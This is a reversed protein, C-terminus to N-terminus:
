SKQPNEDVEVRRADNRVKNTPRDIQVLLKRIAAINSRTERFFMMNTREDVQPADKSQLQAAILPATDKARAPAVDELSVQGNAFHEFLEHSKAVEGVRCGLTEIAGRSEGVDDNHTHALRERIQVAQEGGERDSPFLVAEADAHKLALHDNLSVTSLDRNLTLRSFPGRKSQQKAGSGGM